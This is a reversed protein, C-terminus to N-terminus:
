GKTALRYPGTIQLQVRRNLRWAEFLAVGIILLSIINSLGGAIPLVAAILVLAGAGVLITGFGLRRAPRGMSPSGAQTVSFGSAERRAAAASDIARGADPSSASITITDAMPSPALHSQTASKAPSKQIERAVLPVYTAAIAFYTLVVALSQYAWGGRNRSGKRVAIGVVYGVAVALIGFELGTIAVVAFYAL